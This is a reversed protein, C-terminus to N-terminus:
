QAVKNRKKLENKLLKIELKYDDFCYNKSFTKNIDKYESIMDICESIQENLGSITYSKIKNKFNVDYINTKM